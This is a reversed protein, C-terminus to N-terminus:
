SLVLTHVYLDICGNGSKDFIYREETVLRKVMHPVLPVLPRAIKYLLPVHRVELQEEYTARGDSPGQCFELTSVGHGPVQKPIIGWVRGILVKRFSRIIPISLSPPSDHSTQGNNKM